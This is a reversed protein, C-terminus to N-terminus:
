LWRDSVELADANEVDEKPPIDPEGSTDVKDGDLMQSTSRHGGRWACAGIYM